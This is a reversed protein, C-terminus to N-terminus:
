EMKAGCHCYLYKSIMRSDEIRGCESCRAIFQECDDIIIWKGIKPQPTVSPLALIDQMILSTERGRSVFCREDSIARALEDILANVAERSICDDCSQQELAKIALDLAEHDSLARTRQKLAYLNHIAIEKTM